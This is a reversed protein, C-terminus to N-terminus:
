DFLHQGSPFCHFYRCDVYVIKKLLILLDIKHWINLTICFIIDFFEYSTCYVGKLAAHKAKNKGLILQM